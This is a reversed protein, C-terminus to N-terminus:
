AIDFRRWLTRWPETRAARVIGGGLKRVATATEASNAAMIHHLPHISVDEAVRMHAALADVPNALLFERLRRVNELLEAVPGIVMRTRHRDARRHGGLRVDCELQEVVVGDRHSAPLGVVSLDVNVAHDLLDLRKADGLDHSDIVFLFVEVRAPQRAPNGRTPAILQVGNM